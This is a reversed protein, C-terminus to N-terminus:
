CHEGRPQVHYYGKKRTPTSPTPAKNIWGRSMEAIVDLCAQKPWDDSWALCSSEVSGCNKDGPMMSRYVMIDIFAKRLPSGPLTNEYALNLEKIPIQNDKEVKDIIADMVSNQLLPIQHGDGFIWLKILLPWEPYVKTPVVENKPLNQTYLWVQFAEFVDIDVEPLEIRRDKAEKFSGNLAARFFDSYFCLLGKHLTYLIEFTGVVLTVSERYLGSDIHDILAEM